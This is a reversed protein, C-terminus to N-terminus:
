EKHRERRERVRVRKREWLSPPPPPLIIWRNMTYMDLRGTTIQENQISDNAIPIYANFWDTEFFLKWNCQKTQCTWFKKVKVTSHYQRKHLVHQSLNKKSSNVSATDKLEFYKHTRLTSWPHKRLRWGSRYTFSCDDRENFCFSM